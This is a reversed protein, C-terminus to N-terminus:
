LCLNFTTTPPPHNHPHFPLPAHTDTLHKIALKWEQATSFRVLACKPKLDKKMETAPSQSAPLYNSDDEAKKKRKKEKKKESSQLHVHKRLVPQVRMSKRQGWGFGKLKFFIFRKCGPKKESWKNRARDQNQSIVSGTHATLM